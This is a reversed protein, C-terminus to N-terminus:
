EGDGVPDSEDLPRHQLMRTVGMPMVTERYETVGDDDQWTEVCGLVTSGVAVELLRAEREDAHRAHYAELGATPRRGTAEEALQAGYGNDTMPSNGDNLGTVLMQPSIEAWAAPYWHVSLEYPRPPAATHAHGKVNPGPSWRQVREVRLVESGRPLEMVDAVYDPAPVLGAATIEVWGPLQAPGGFEGYGLRGAAARSRSGWLLRKVTLDPGRDRVYTANGVVHAYGERCLERQAKTATAHSVNWTEALERVTPLRDGPGLAGTSIQSKIMTMIQRYKPPEVPSYM